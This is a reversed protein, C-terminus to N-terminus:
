WNPLDFDWSAFLANDTFTDPTHIILVISIALQM